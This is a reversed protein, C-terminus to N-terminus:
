LFLGLYWQIVTEGVLMAVWAGVAIAPGFPFHRDEDRHNRAILGFLIGVVCAVLFGFLNVSWTFYLGIMFLLKIDGGGMTEKKLIKDGLISILLLPLSISLGGIVSRLLLNWRDGDALVFVLRCVIGAVILRDPIIFDELDAFAACLVLSALVAMQLAMWSVDFRLLVSVFVLAAVLESLPYRASIHAGCWRCRGRQFLWSFLPVLERASLTHGCSMCHSRGRALPEDHVIRIAACNLFSGMVLGVLATLAILYVTVLPTSYLM